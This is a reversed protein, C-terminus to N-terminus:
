DYKVKSLISHREIRNQWYAHVLGMYFKWRSNVCFSFRYFNVQPWILRICNIIADLSVVFNGNKAREIFGMARYHM